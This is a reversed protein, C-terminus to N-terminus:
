EGNLRRLISLGTLRLKENAFHSDYRWGSTLSLHAAPQPSAKYVTSPSSDKRLM